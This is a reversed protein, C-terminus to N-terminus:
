YFGRELELLSDAGPFSVTVSMGISYYPENSDDGATKTEIAGGSLRLSLTIPRSLSVLYNFEAGMGARDHGSSLNDRQWFAQGEISFQRDLYVTAGAAIGYDRGSSSDDGDLDTGTLFTSGKLDVPGIGFDDLFIKGKVEVGVAHASSGDVDSFTYRPGISAEFSDTYRLFIDGGLTIGGTDVGVSGVRGAISSGSANTGQYFPTVLVRAGLERDIPISVVGTISTFESNLDSAGDLEM